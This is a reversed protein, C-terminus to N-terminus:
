VQNFATAAKFAIAVEHKRRSCSRLEFIPMVAQMGGGTVGSGSGRRTASRGGSMGGSLCTKVIELAFLCLPAAQFLAGLSRSDSRLVKVDLIRSKPTADSLRFFSTRVNLSSHRLFWLSNEFSEFIKFPRRSSSIM